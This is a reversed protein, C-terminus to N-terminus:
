ECGVETSLVESQATGNVSANARARFQRGVGIGCSAVNELQLEPVGSMSTSQCMIDEFSGNPNWQVCVELALSAAADCQVGGLGTITRAQTDPTASATVTCTPNGAPRADPHSQGDDGGGDDGGGCAAIAMVLLLRKTM